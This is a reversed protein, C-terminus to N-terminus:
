FDDDGGMGGDGGLDPIAKEIEEPDQGSELRDVVEHFEPGLDEGMESSMKRMMRGLARPDDELGELASPDAMDEFRSDESKAIRVRGIRRQVNESSCHPCAVSKKGYEAYTIFTSFRRKCELCRYDYNPM